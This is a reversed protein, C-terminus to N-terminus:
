AERNRLSDLVLSTCYEADHLEAPMPRFEITLAKMQRRAGSGPQFGLQLKGGCRNAPESDQPILVYTVVYMGEANSAAFFLGIANSGDERDVQLHPVRSRAQHLSLRLQHALRREEDRLESLYERSMNVPIGHPNTETSNKM